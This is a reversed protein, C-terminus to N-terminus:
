IPFSSTSSILSSLVTAATPSNSDRHISVYIPNCNERFNRTNTILAWLYGNYLGYVIISDSLYNIWQVNLTTSM